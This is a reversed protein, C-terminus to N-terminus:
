SKWQLLLIVLLQKPVFPNIEAKPNHDIKQLFAFAPAPVSDSFVSSHDNGAQKGRVREAEMKIYGLGKQESVTDGVTLQSNRCQNDTLFLVRGLSPFLEESQRKGTNLDSNTSLFQSM